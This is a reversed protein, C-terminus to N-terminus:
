VRRLNAMNCTVVYDSAEPMRNTIYYSEDIFMDKSDVAGPIQKLVYNKMLSYQRRILFHLKLTIRWQATTNATPCPKCCIMFMDVYTNNTTLVWTSYYLANFPATGTAYTVLDTCLPKAAKEFEAHTVDKSGWPYKVDNFYLEDIFGSSNRHYKIGYICYKYSPSFQM